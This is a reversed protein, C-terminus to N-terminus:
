GKGSRSVEPQDDMVIPPDVPRDDGRQQDHERDRADPGVSIGSAYRSEQCGISTGTTVQDRDGIPHGLEADDRQHPEPLLVVVDAECRDPPAEHFPGREDEDCQRTPDDVPETLRSGHRHGLEELNSVAPVETYEGTKDGEDRPDDVVADEATAALNKMCRHPNGSAIM